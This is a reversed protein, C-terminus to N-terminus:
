PPASVVEPLACRVRERWVTRAEPVTMTLNYKEKVALWTNVYDCVGVPPLWEDPRQHGKSVNTAAEVVRLNTVDNAFERRRETPWFAGGSMHAEHLPVLHDIHVEAPKTLLKGTYPCRWRAWQVRCEQTDTWVICTEQPCTATCEANAALIEQRTDQCDGDADIWHPWDARNYAPLGSGSASSVSALLGGLALYRGLAEAKRGM